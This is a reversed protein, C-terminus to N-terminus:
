HKLCYFSLPLRIQEKSTKESSGPIFSVFNFYSTEKPSISVNQVQEHRSKLLVLSKHLCKKVIMSLPLFCNLSRVISNRFWGNVLKSLSRKSSLSIALTGSGVRSFHFFHSSFMSSFCTGSIISENSKSFTLPLFLNQKKKLLSIQYRYMEVQLNTLFRCVKAMVDWSFSYQTQLNVM